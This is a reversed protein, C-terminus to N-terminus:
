LTESIPMNKTINIVFIVEVACVLVSKLFIDKTYISSFDTAKKHQQESNQGSHHKYEKIMLEDLIRHALLLADKGHHQM